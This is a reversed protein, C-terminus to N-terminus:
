KEWDILIIKNKKILNKKKPKGYYNIYKEEATYGIVM